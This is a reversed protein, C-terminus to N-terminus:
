NRVYLAGPLRRVKRQLELELLESLLEAPARGSSAAIEELTAPKDVQMASLVGFAETEARGVLDFGLELAVDQADRVLRAGDRILANTGASGLSSPHGPVAMVDRGSELALRATILSGSKIAAEVVVVGCVWGAIIRNRRPFNHPAPGTGLPLESVLGGREAIQLALSANEKPYICDLGAGVVAVTRGEALLAGRHAETDIGRALGSVVTAGAAALDRGLARALALGAPHAARAGVIAVSREGEGADLAGRVYLVPPPDYIERLYAPYNADDYGVLEIGLQAAKRAELEARRRAEGSRLRRVGEAGLLDAHQQPAALAEAITGRVRLERLRRPGVDPLLAFTLLDFRDDRPM